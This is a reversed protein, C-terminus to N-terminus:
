LKNVDSDTSQLFYRVQDMAIESCPLKFINEKICHCLESIYTQVSCWCIDTAHPTRYTFGPTYPVWVGHRTYGRVMHGIRHKMQHYWDVQSFMVKVLNRKGATTEYVEVLLLHQLVTAIM